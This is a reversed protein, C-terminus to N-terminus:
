FPRVLLKVLSFRRFGAYSKSIFNLGNSTVIANGKSAGTAGQNRKCVGVNFRALISSSDNQRAFPKAIERRDPARKTSRGPPPEAGPEAEQVRSFPNSHSFSFPIPPERTRGARASIPGPDVINRKRRGQSRGKRSDRLAKRKDGPRRRSKRRKCKKRACGSAVDEREEAARRIGDSRTPEDPLQPVLASVFSLRPIGMFYRNAITAARASTPVALAVEREASQQPPPLQQRLIL